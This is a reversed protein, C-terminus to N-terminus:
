TRVIAGAPLQEHEVWRWLAIILKRALAVIGIKRMRKSGYGFRQHFWISLESEPQYRLWSWALEIAVARVPRIGAKSIGQEQSLEGSQFPTPTLGM